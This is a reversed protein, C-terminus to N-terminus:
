NRYEVFAVARLTIPKEFPSQPAITKDFVLLRQGQWFSAGLLIKIRTRDPLGLERLRQDAERILAPNM